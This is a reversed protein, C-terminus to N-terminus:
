CWSLIGFTAVDKYESLYAAWFRNPDPRDAPRRADGGAALRHRGAGRRHLGQHRRPFGIFFDVVGYYVTVMVGAVAALAAGLM